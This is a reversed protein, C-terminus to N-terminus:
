VIQEYNIDFGSVDTNNNKIYENMETETMILANDYLSIHVCSIFQIIDNIEYNKAICILKNNKIYFIHKNM